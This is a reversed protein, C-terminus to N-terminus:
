SRAAEEMGERRGVDEFLYALLWLEEESRNLYKEREAEKEQLARRGDLVGLLDEKWSILIWIRGDEGVRWIWRRFGTTTIIAFLSSSISSIQDLDMSSILSSIMSRLPSSKM